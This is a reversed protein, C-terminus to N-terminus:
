LDKLHEISGITRINPHLDGNPNKCKLKIFPMVRDSSGTLSVSVQAYYINAMGVSVDAAFVEEPNLAVIQQSVLEARKNTEIFQISGKGINPDRKKFINLLKVEQKSRFTPSCIVAIKCM